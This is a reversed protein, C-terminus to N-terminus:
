DSISIYSPFERYQGTMSDNDQKMNLAANSLEARGRDIGDWLM